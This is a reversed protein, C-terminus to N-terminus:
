KVEIQVTKTEYYNSSIAIEATGTEGITKVWFGISGGILSLQKPGILEIPGKVKLSIPENSYTLPRNFEDKLEVIVRTTEYTNSESLVSDDITVVLDNQYSSGIEKTEVLSNNLYAEFKYNTSEQGWRGVYKEYFQAAKDM